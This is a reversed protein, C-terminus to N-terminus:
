VMWAVRDVKMFGFSASVCIKLSKFIVTQKFIVFIKSRGLKKIFNHIIIHTLEKSFTKM